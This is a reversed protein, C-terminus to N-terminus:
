LVLNIVVIINAQLQVVRRMKSGVLETLIQGVCHRLQFCADMNILHKEIRKRRSRECGVRLRGVAGRVM